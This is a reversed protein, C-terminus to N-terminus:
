RETFGTRNQEMVWQGSVPLHAASSKAKFPLSVTSLDTGQVQSMSVHRPHLFGM